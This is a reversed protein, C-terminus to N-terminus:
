KTAEVRMKPERWWDGDKKYDTIKIGKWGETALIYGILEPTFWMKHRLHLEGSGWNNSRFTADDGVIVHHINNNWNRHTFVAKLTDPTIFEIKGGDKLIRQCESLLNIFAPFQLHEIFDCSYILDAHNDPMPIGTSLDHVIDVNPLELADINPHYLPIEGGGLEINLLRVGRASELEAINM